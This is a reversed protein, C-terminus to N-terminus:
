NYFIFSPSEHVNMKFEVKPTGAKWNDFEEITEDLLDTMEKISNM